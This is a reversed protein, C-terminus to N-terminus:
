TTEGAPKTRADKSKRVAAATQALALRRIGPSSTPTWERPEAPDRDDLHPRRTM